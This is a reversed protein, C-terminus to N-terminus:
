EHKFDWFYVLADLLKLLKTKLKKSFKEKLQKFVMANRLQRKDKFTLHKIYINKAYM